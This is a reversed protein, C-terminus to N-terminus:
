GPTGLTANVPTSLTLTLTENGEVYTDDNILINISRDSQGAAFSLTGQNLIFDCNQVASGNITSCAFFSNGGTSFNISSAGTTDGTRKVHVQANGVGESFNYTALEMQISPLAVACNSQNWNLVVNGREGSWGDVAIKYNTGATATFTVTSTRIVGDQVDDSKGIVTLGGLSSGTYIGMVTDFDSGATTITVSQSVPAQWQYWLSGGGTSGAPDHSPEGTERTANVNSGNVSGSCGSIIQPSAFNDNAPPTPTPTPSPSPAPTGSVVIEWIGRGHTAIRLIRNPSQIAIDFVAVRPLGTGYPNWNAGGDTSNYVGIDTGAFLNNSDQPDVVFANVPVDPIGNGSAVWTGAGGALNTTKWVHHGATVGYGGFTVYATNPHNPDIVARGVARSSPFSGNTVDTLPNGGTTTAYVRGSRTGVIRFNDDQPSIGITTLPSGSVLPGQSVLTMTVGRDSSRYLRDTGFYLTNPNGPGLAMPAYFLVTDSCSIGNPTWAGSQPSTCGYRNPWSSGGNTTRAYGIQTSNNFFTHYMTATSTDGANQDIVAYGGDGGDSRVWAQNPARRETGNDQTGGIMFERDIPHLALSQFQTASFQTNNLSIWTNGGDSSKYIGGDNGLYAISPDSPAFTVAHNDAHVINSSPTNVFSNGGDTSRAILRSCASTSAVNGGLLVNSANNPDIALAINYFCQGGCFGNGGALPTSWTQGGDTSQRLTGASSTSCGSQTQNEGSAVLATVVGGVKNIALEARGSGPSVGDILTLTQTFTPAGDLANTSRYVGGDGSTSRVTCLLNNPNGPELVVDVISRDIATVSLKTFSPIASGANNSRYLGLAAPVSVTGGGPNGSGGTTTSVFVINPDSPHVVVKGIARGTFSGPNIPGFLDASTEANNIRYLGVGFFSDGSFQPEGTGVYVISPDSPAIAISGIALSQASDFLQTWNAGGDLTRYVGGQATGVYAINANSPHVAIATTRGSNTTSGAPLPAPGIETWAVDVSSPGLGLASALKGLFSNKGSRQLEQQEMQQIAKGRLSADFPIGPTVGRLMALYGSRQRLYTEKDIKNTFGSPLDPDDGDGEGGNADPESAERRGESAASTVRGAQSKSGTPKQPEKPSDPTESKPARAIPAPSQTLRLGNTSSHDLNRASTATDRFNWLASLGLLALAAVLVGTTRKM